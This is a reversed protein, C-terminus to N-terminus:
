FGIMLHLEAGMFMLSKTKYEMDSIEYANEVPINAINKTYHQFPLGFAFSLTENAAIGIAPEVFFGKVNCHEFNKALGKVGKNKGTNYASIGFRNGLDCQIFFSAQSRSSVDGLLYRGRLFLPLTLEGHYDFENKNNLKGQLALAHIYDIGSGVGFQFEPSFRYLFSINAGGIAQAGKGVGEGLHLDLYSAVTGTRNYNYNYGYRDNRGRDDYYRQAYASSVTMCCLATALITTLIKKM